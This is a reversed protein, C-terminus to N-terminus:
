PVQMDGIKELVAHRHMHDTSTGSMRPRTNRKISIRMQKTIFVLKCGFLSVFNKAASETGIRHWRGTLAM